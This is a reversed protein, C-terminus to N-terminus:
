PLMVASPQLTAWGRCSKVTLMRRAPPRRPVPGSGDRIPRVTITTRAATVTIATTTDAMTYSSRPLTGDAAKLIILEVM